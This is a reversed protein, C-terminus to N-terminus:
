RGIQTPNPISEDMSPPQQGGKLMMKQQMQKENLQQMAEAIKDAGRVWLLKMLAPNQLILPAQQNALIAELIAQQEEPSSDYDQTREVYIDVPLTRIDNLVVKKGNVEKTLNLIVTEKEDEDLVVNVLINEIGSGQILDLLMRGERKKVLNSGDFGYALNNSTGIKRQKIAIGSTANTAEGLSDSYMGSVQQLEHDNREAAQMSSAALDLNPVINVETGRSKFLVSDPRSLEARIQEASMGIFAEEDVVARVSNLSMLERLKRYNIERQLDKMDHLWGVPVADSTRRSWVFPIAIFNEMNPLNPFMPGYELLIDNCFVTRMIQTGMEETLDNKSYAISEAVEEDFTEFYHGKQDYGCIYKRPERYMVENVLLRSGNYGGYNSTSPIFASRRNFFESSFNGINSIMEESSVVEDFRKAMKPWLSKIEDLAYWHLETVHRMNTLQPSFDDADFVYNLPHNYRYYYKNRFSYLKSWGIGCILADRFKLSGQYSFNEQEQITFALHTLAKALNEEEESGSHSRYAIKARTNIELGSAQNIMSKIKNVVVPAQGRERLIEMVKPPYQGTGDFFSFHEITEARWQRYFLNSTSLQWIRKAKDLAKQQSESLQHM